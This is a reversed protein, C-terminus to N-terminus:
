VIQVLLFRVQQNPIKLIVQKLYECNERAFIEEDICPPFDQVEWNGSELKRSIQLKIMNPIKELIIPRLLSGFQEYNVVLNGLAQVNSEVNDHLERLSRVNPSYVPSIILIKNKHSSIIIQENM